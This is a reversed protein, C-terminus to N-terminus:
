SNLELTVPIKYSAIRERLFLQIQRGLGDTHASRRIQLLASIRGAGARVTAGSVAPHELLAREVEALDVMLGNVKCTRKLEHDFILHGDTVHGADGTLFWGDVIADRSEAPRRYYGTSMTPCRFRIEGTAGPSRAGIRCAVGDSVYGITGGRGAGREHRSVPTFETLGYGHLVETRFLNTLRDYQAASLLSGGSGLTVLEPFPDMNTAASSLLAYIEPVAMVHQVGLERMLVFFRRPHITLAMVARLGYLLPVFVCGILTFIHTCPLAFLVAGGAEAQLGEQFVRAGHLYQQQDVMAGLPYGYGRYTYNISALTEPLDVARLPAHGAQEEALADGRRVLVARGGLYPALREVADAEAVVLVPDANAFIEDLELRRYELKGIVPIGGAHLLGLFICLFDLSNELFLACLVGRRVGVRRLRDSAELVRQRLQLGTLSVADAPRTAQTVCEQNGFSELAELIRDVLEAM